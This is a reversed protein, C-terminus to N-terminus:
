ANCVTTTMTEGAKWFHEVVPRSADELVEASMEQLKRGQEIGGIFSQRAFDVQTTIVETPSKASFMRRVTAAQRETSSKAYGFWANTIREIGRAFTANAHIAADIGSESVAVMDEFGRVADTSAKVAAEVQERGRTMAENYGKGAIDNGVEFATEVAKTGIATVAEATERHASVAAVATAGDGGKGAPEVVPTTVATTKPATKKTTTM